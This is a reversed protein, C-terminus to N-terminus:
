VRKDANQFSRMTLDAVDTVFLKNRRATFSLQNLSKGDFTVYYIYNAIHM